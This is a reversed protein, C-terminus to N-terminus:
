VVVDLYLSAYIAHPPQGWIQFSSGERSAKRVLFDAANNKERPVHTFSVQWDNRLWERVELILERDWYTDLSRSDGLVQVIDLRDSTCGLSRIRINWAHGLGLEVEWLESRFANGVVKSELVASYWSGDPGRIITAGGMRGTRRGWSGDVALTYCCTTAGTSSSTTELNSRM